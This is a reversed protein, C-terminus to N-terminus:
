KVRVARDHRSVTAATNGPGFTMRAQSSHSEGVRWVSPISESTSTAASM